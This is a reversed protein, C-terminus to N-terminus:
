GMYLVCCMGGGTDPITYRQIADGIASMDEGYFVGYMTLAFVLLLFLVNWVTKKKGGM